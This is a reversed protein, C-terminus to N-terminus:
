LSSAMRHLLYRGATNDFIRKLFSAVVETKKQEESKSLAAINERTDMASFTDVLSGVDVKEEHYTNMMGEYVAMLDALGDGDIDDLAELEEEEPLPEEEPAKPASTTSLKYFTKQVIKALVERADESLRTQAPPEQEEEPADDGEPEGPNPMAQALIRSIADRDAAPLANLDREIKEELEDVVQLASPETAEPISADHLHAIAQLLALADKDIPFGEQNDILEKVLKVRLNETVQPTKRIAAGVRGIASILGRVVPKLAPAIFRGVYHGVLGNLLIQLSLSTQFPKLDDFAHPGLVLLPIYVIFFTFCMTTGAQSALDLMFDLNAAPDKAADQLRWIFYAGWLINGMMNIPNRATSGLAVCVIVSGFAVVSWKEVADPNELTAVESAAAILFAIIIKSVESLFHVFHDNTAVSVRYAARIGKAVELWEQWKEAKLQLRASLFFDDKLVLGEGIETTQMWRVIDGLQRRQVQKGFEKIAIIGAVTTVSLASGIGYFSPTRYFDRHAEMTTATYLSITPVSPVFRQQLMDIVQQSTSTPQFVRAGMIPISRMTTPALAPPLSSDPGEVCNYIQWSCLSWSLTAWGPAYLPHRKKAYGPQHADYTARVKPMHAAIYASLAPIGEAEANELLSELDQLLHHDNEQGQRKEQATFSGRTQDLAALFARSQMPHFDRILTICTAHALASSAVNNLTRKAQQRAALATSTNSSAATVPPPLTSSAM